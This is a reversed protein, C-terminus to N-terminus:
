SLSTPSPVVETVKNAPSSRLSDLPNISSPICEYTKILPNLSARLNTRSFSLSNEILISTLFVLSDLSINILHASVARLEM